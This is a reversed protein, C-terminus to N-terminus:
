FRIDWRLIQYESVVLEPLEFRVTIQKKVNETKNEISLLRFRMKLFEYEGAPLQKMTRMVLNREQFGRIKGATEKGQLSEIDQPILINIIV